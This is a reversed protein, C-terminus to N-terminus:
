LPPAPAARSTEDGPTSPRGPVVWRWCAATVVVSVVIRGPLLWWISAGQLAFLGTDEILAHCLGLFLGLIGLEAPRLRGERGAQLLAGAGYTVGWLAGVLLPFIAHEGLGLRGLSAGVRASIREFARGWELLSLAVMLPVVIALVQGLLRLSGLGGEKLAAVLDM